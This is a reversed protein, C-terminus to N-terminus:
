KTVFMNKSVQGQFQIYGQIMYIIYFICKSTNIVRFLPKVSTGVKVEQLSMNSRSILRQGQINGEIAIKELIRLNMWCNVKDAIILGLFIIKSRFPTLGM